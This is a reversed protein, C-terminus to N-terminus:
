FIDPVSGLAGKSNIFDLVGGQGVFKLYWSVKFCNTSLQYPQDISCVHSDFNMVDLVSQLPAGSATHSHSGPADLWFILQQGDIQQLYSSDPNDNLVSFPQDVTVPTGSSDLYTYKQRGSVSQGVNWKSANDSVKAQIEVNWAWIPVTLADCSRLGLNESCTQDNPLFTLQDAISKPGPGFSVTICASPKSARLGSRDGGPFQWSTVGECSPPGTLAQLSGVSDISNWVGPSAYVPNTGLSYSQPPNGSNDFKLVQTGSNDSSSVFVGDPAVMTLAIQNSGGQSGPWTWQAGGSNVDFAVLKDNNTAFATNNDGLVLGKGTYVGTKYCGYLSTPGGYSEGCWNKMPLTYDSANGSADIHTVMATTSANNGYIHDDWAALVGGQGDPIVERPSMEETPGASVGSGSFSRISQTSSGGNPDIRLLQLSASYTESFWCSYGIAYPPYNLRYGVSFYNDLWSHTYYELYKSGDPGVTVPGIDSPLPNVLTEGPGCGHAPDSPMIYTSTGAPIQYQFVVNGTAGDFGVLRSNGDSLYNDEVAFITNDPHVAVSLNDVYDFARSPTYSWVPLGSGGDLKSMIPASNFALLGGANDPVLSNAGYAAAVNPVQWLQQGDATLGRVISNGNADKELAFLDPTNGGTPVAQHIELPLFGSAPAVSWLSTGPPFGGGATAAYVNVTSQASMGATSVTVIATGSNQATLVPPDDTSLTIVATNNDVTWTAGTVAESNQDKLMLTRTGGVLMAVTSPTLTLSTTPAILHFFIPNSPVGGQTVVANGRTANSAVNAVIQGDSWSQIIAPQNGIMVSGGAQAAGFYQGSLTVQQGPPGSPPVITDLRPTNVTFLISNSLTGNLYVSLVGTTTGNAVQATIQGDSWSQVIALQNGIYVQGLTNGFNEGAITIQQGIPGSSPNVTDIHAVLVTFPVSNSQVAGQLVYVNGSTAHAPVSAVIQADSWSQVSALQGGIILGYAISQTAGFGSGSVTIQTGVPGSPQSLGSIIPANVTFLVANSALGNDATVVINGTTAGLPINTVITTSTWSSTITPVGNFTVSGPSSFNQGTITIQSGIAGSPQSLGTIVPAASGVTFNVGNSAFGYSTTVIVNGSTTQPVIAQIATDSWSQITAQAGNFTVGSVVNQTSGFGSGVITVLSGVPGVPSQLATINPTVYFYVKNDAFGNVTITVLGNIAGVPIPATISTNSWATPQSTIGNFVVTSAGQLDGFSTGTFTIPAGIIGMNPSTSTIVSMVRFSVANSAAGNANTVVVDVFGAALTSPVSASISSDSWSNLGATVGGFTVTGPSAGFGSGTITVPRGVPSVPGLAPSLGTIAPASQANAYCSFLAILVISYCLLSVVRRLKL